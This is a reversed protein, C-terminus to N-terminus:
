VRKSHFWESFQRLDKDSVVEKAGALSKNGHVVECEAKDVLAAGYCLVGFSFFLVSVHTVTVM